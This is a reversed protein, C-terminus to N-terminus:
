YLASELVTDRRVKQYGEYELAFGTFTARGTLLKESHQIKSLSEQLNSRLSSISEAIASSTLRPAVDRKTKNTTEGQIVERVHNVLLDLHTRWTASLGGVNNMTGEYKRLLPTVRETEQRWLEPDITTMEAFYFRGRSSGLTGSASIALENVESDVHGDEDEGEVVELDEIEDDDEEKLTYALHSDVHIFTWFLSGGASVMPVDLAELTSAHSPLKVEFKIAKLACDAFHNLLLCANYGYGQSISTPTAAALQEDM